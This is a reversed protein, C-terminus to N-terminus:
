VLTGAQAMSSDIAVILDPIRVVIAGSSVSGFQLLRWSTSSERVLVRGEGQALTVSTSTLGDITDSGARTLTLTAGSAASCYLTIRQGAGCASAAPLTVSASATYQVVVSSSTLTTTDSAIGDTLLTQRAEIATADDLLTLIYASPTVGAVKAVTPSPYTGSLDGSANGGPPVGNSGAITQGARVLTQGDNITAVPLVVNDITTIQSQGQSPQYTTSSM